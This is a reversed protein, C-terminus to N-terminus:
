YIRIQVHEGREFSAVLAATLAVIDAHIARDNFVEPSCKAIQRMRKRVLQGAPTRMNPNSQFPRVRQGEASALAGLLCFSGAGDTLLVRCWGEPTALLAQVRRAIALAEANIHNAENGDFPM